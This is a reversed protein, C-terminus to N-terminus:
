GMTSPVWYFCDETYLALWDQRSKDDLLAAERYLFQEVGRLDSEDLAEARGLILGM